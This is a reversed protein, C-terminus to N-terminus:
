QKPTIISKWTKNIQLGCDLNMLSQERHIHLAELIRRKWYQKAPTKVTAGEWDPRHDKNWAIGNHEDGKKVAAKHETLRKKLTRKTEGIYVYECDKCSVEYM